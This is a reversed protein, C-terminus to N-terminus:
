AADLQARVHEIGRSELRANKISLMLLGTLVKRKQMAHFANKYKELRSDEIMGIKQFASVAAEFSRNEFYERLAEQFVQTQEPSIGFSTLVENHKGSLAEGAVGSKLFYMEVLMTMQQPSISKPLARKLVNLPFAASVMQSIDMQDILVHVLYGQLFSLLDPYCVMLEKIREVRLHTTDRRMNALYRIDPAVAGWYYANRDEPHIFPELKTALVHHSYPGM